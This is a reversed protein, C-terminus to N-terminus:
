RIDYDGWMRCVARYCRRPEKDPCSGHCARWPGGGAVLGAGVECQSLLRKPHMRLRGGKPSAVTFGVQLAQKGTALYLDPDIIEFEHLM